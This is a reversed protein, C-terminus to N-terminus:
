LQVMRMPSERYATPATAKERVGFLSLVKKLHKEWFERQGQAGSLVQLPIAYNPLGSARMSEDVLSSIWKTLNGEDTMQAIYGHQELFMASQYMAVVLIRRTFATGRYICSVIDLRELVATVLSETVKDDHDGIILEKIFGGGKPQLDVMGGPTMEIALLYLSSQFVQGRGRKGEYFDTWFPHEAIRETADKAKSSNAKLREAHSLPMHNEVRLFRAVKEPDPRASLIDIRLQYGLWYNRTIQDLESFFKGPQVPGVKSNPEYAMKQRETMTKFGDAMFELLTLVRNQGDGIEYKPEGIHEGDTFFGDYAEVSPFPDGLFISDVFQQKMRLNWTLERQFKPRITYKYSEVQLMKFSVIETKHQQRAIAHALKLSKASRNNM